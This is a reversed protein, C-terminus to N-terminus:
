HFILHNLSCHTINMFEDVVFTETVELIGLQQNIDLEFFYTNTM